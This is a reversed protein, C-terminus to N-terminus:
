SPCRERTDTRQILEQALDAFASAISRSEDIAFRDRAAAAAFAVDTKVMADFHHVPQGWTDQCRAPLQSWIRAQDQRLSNNHLKVNNAVVGHLHLQPCLTHRMKALSRLLRPTAEASTADLIVPVIVGDSAALANVCAASLRPPCDFLVFDYENAVSPAHIHERLVFRIDREDTRVLFRAMAFTEASFLPEDAPVLDLGPISPMSHQCQCFNDIALASRDFLRDVFGNHRRIEGLVEAGLFLSSLSGQFDLDVALVRHGKRALTAALNACLTTKGVGGKLNVFSLIRARRDATPVFPDAPLNTSCEWVEGDSDWLASFRDDSEAVQKQSEELENAVNIHAERERELERSLEAVRARLEDKGSELTNVRKVAEQKAEEAQSANEIARAESANAKALLLELRQRDSTLQRVEDRVRTLEPEVYRLKEQLTSSKIDLRTRTEVLDQNEQRLQRNECALNRQVWWRWLLPVLPLSLGGIVFFVVERSCDRLFGAVLNGLSELWPSM